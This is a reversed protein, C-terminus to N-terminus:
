GRAGRRWGRSAIVVIITTAIAGVITAVGIGVSSSTNSTGTTTATVIAAATRTIWPGRGIRARWAM